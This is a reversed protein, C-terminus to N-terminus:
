HLPGGNIGPISFILGIRYMPRYRIPNSQNWQQASCELAFCRGNGIPPKHTIEACSHSIKLNKTDKLEIFWLYESLCWPSNWIELELALHCVQGWIWHPMFVKLLVGWQLSLSLKLWQVYFPLARMSFNLSWGMLGGRWRGKCLLCRLAESAPKALPAEYWFVRWNLHKHSTPTSELPTATPFAKHEPSPPCSILRLWNEINVSNWNNRKVLDLEWHSM